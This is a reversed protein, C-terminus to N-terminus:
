VATPLYLEVSTGRPHNDRVRIEGDLDTILWNVLALGIGSGHILPRDLDHEIANREMDPIGPGNDEVSIKADGGVFREARLTVEHTDQDNHEIANEVLEELAERLAAENALVTVDSGDTEIRATPHRLEYTTKISDFLPALEVSTIVEAHTEMDEVQRSKEAIEIVEKAERHISDTDQRARTADFKSLRDLFGILDDLEDHLAESEEIANVYESPLDDVESLEGPLEIDALQNRLHEAHGLVVTLNNRINHRLVRNLVSLRQASRKEDTIDKIAGRLYTEGNLEVLEGESHTWRRKGNETIIRATVEFPVGEQISTTIAEQIAARDEPHFSDIADNLDGKFTNKGFLEETGETWYVEGSDLNVSWGGVAALEEIQNLFDLWGSPDKGPSPSPNNSSM